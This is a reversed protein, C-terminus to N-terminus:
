AGGTIEREADLETQRIEAESDKEIEEIENKLEHLRHRLERNRSELDSIETLYFDLSEQTESHEKKLEKNSKLLSDYKDNIMLIYIVFPIALLLWPCMWILLFFLGLFVLAILWEVVTENM